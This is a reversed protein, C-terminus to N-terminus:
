RIKNYRSLHSFAKQMGCWFIHKFSSKWRSVRFAVKPHVSGSVGRPFLANYMVHCFHFQYLKDQGDIIPNKLFNNSLNNRFRDNLEWTSGFKERKRSCDIECLWTIRDTTSNQSWHTYTLPLTVQQHHPVISPFDRRTKICINPDNVGTQWRLCYIALKKAIVLPVFQQSFRLVCAQYCNRFFTVCTQQVRAHNFQIVKHLRGRLIPRYCAM